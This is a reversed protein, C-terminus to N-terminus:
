VPLSDLLGAVYQLIITADISNVDGSENVDAADECALSDLLGAVLQLVLTADISDVSGSCNVDGFLAASPTPTRTRTPTPTRTRTATPGGPTPPPGGGCNLRLELGVAEPPIELVETEVYSQAPNDPSVCGPAQARVKYFGAIVDWHFVGDSGTTDPNTRNSPSMSASGDPVVEFPGASSDSRYLTVTAGAIPDGDQDVVTGSPDIYVDIDVTKSDAPNPCNVKISIVAEGHTPQLPPITAKYLGSSIETMPGSQIIVGGKIVAYSATCGPDNTTTVQNAVGWHIVPAGAATTSISSITVGPPLPHPQTLFFDQGTLTEGSLLDIPGITGPFLDDRGAPPFASGVYQGPLLGSVSYEGLANTTTTNCTGGARCIQVLAGALPVAGGAPAGLLHAETKGVLQVADIEEWGDVLTYIRIGDVRYGTQDFTLAFKGPCQTIDTGTWVTHYDNGTDILNVEDIFPANYTEWVTLGTAYVPQAFSVELWEPDSGSSLPAWSEGYDGCRPNGSGDVNNPAGTAQSANWSDGPTTRYSSSATASSAFQELTGPPPPPPGGGEGEYVHGSITGGTPAAGSRVAFVYRGTVLSNRSNNALGSPSSDLFAGNVASGPLELSTDVGNSYGARASSGGLGGTGGSADGTEWQVQDYNFIIDFDGVGVDSRDVLLLQFSNLKDTHSGYYGVNVWNVCFTTRGGFTTNGYTTLGSGTGRTDVDAFFPAIIVRTTSLLDYPTYSSQTSDFTVNGNNNVYLSSYSIGFFNVTLPLAVSGTSGDDNAALSNTTCGSLSKIAGAVGAADDAAATGGFQSQRSGMVLGTLVLGALFLPALVLIRKM